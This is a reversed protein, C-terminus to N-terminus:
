QSGPKGKLHSSLITLLLNLQSSTLDRKPFITTHRRGRARLLVHKRTESFSDFNEWSLSINRLHNEARIGWEFLSINTPAEFVPDSAIVGWLRMGYFLPGLFIFALGVGAVGKSVETGFLLLPPAVMLIFLYGLLFMPRRFGNALYVRWVEGNSRKITFELQPRENAM